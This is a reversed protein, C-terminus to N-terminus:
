RRRGVRLLPRLLARLVSRTAPRLVARLAPRLVARVGSRRRWVERGAVAGLPAGLAIAVLGWAPLGGGDEGEVPWETVPREEAPAQLGALLPTVSDSGPSPATNLVWGGDSLAISRGAEPRPLPPSRYDVEDVLRGAPDRLSVVDGDNALGNGLRGDGVILVNPGTGSVVSGAVAEATAAIVVLGGAEVRGRPLVDTAANDSIQWGELEVAM